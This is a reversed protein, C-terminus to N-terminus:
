IHFASAPQLRSVLWAPILSGTFAVFFAILGIKILSSLSVVLTLQPLLLPISPILFIAFLVAIMFGFFTLIGSQIITSLMISLQGVGLAKIIAIERKRRIVQSYSTFGIILVALATCIATMIMIIEVGMQKALHADNRVFEQHTLVNVKDVNDSILRSLEAPNVGDEADVILYSYTGSSSLLSELDSFPVFMVTNASSYTGSSLGVITFVKDAIKLKDGVTVQSIESLIDPIIVESPNKILRGASIDWPGARNSDPLLGVIFAFMKQKGATVVSNLYLIPTVRKVGPLSAIKDAKWDWVFSMAMHMNAVGEQMVWVDPNIHNPYSVIQETEGRWIADFFIVLIFTFAIGLTSGILSGPQTFLSKWTWQIM